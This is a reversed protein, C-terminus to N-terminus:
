IARAEIIHAWLGSNRVDRPCTQSPARALSHGRDVMADVLRQDCALANPSSSYSCLDLYRHLRTLYAGSRSCLMCQM